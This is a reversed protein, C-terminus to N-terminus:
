LPHELGATVRKKRMISHEMAATVHKKRMITRKIEM